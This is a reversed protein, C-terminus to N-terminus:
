PGLVEKRGDLGYRTELLGRCMMANFTMSVRQRRTRQLHAELDEAAIPAGDLDTVLRADVHIHLGVRQRRELYARALPAGGRVLREVGNIDLRLGGSDSSDLVDRDRLGVVQQATLGAELLLRVLQEQRMGFAKGRFLARLDDLDGDTEDPFVERFTHGSSVGETIEDSQGHDKLVVRASQVGAVKLAAQRADHAMLYAFSPSCWFTPLRLGITVSGERPDIAVDEIFGLQVVSEDLEPDVVADLAAYLAASDVEACPTQVAPSALTM